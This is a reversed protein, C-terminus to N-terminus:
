AGRELAFIVDKTHDDDVYFLGEAQAMELIDRMRERTSEEYYGDGDAIFWCHMLYDATWQFLKSLRQRAIPEENNGIIVNLLEPIADPQIDNRM